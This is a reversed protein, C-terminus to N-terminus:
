PTSTFEGSADLRYGGPTHAPRRQSHLFQQDYRSLCNKRSAPRHENRRSRAVPEGSEAVM